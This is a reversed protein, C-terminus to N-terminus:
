RRAGKAIGAASRPVDRTDPNRTPGTLGASLPGPGRPLLGGADLLERVSRASHVTAFPKQLFRTRDGVPPSVSPTMRMGSMFIVKLGPNERRLADALAPGNMGPMMVDTVLLDIPPERNAALQRAEDGSATTLVTYGPM